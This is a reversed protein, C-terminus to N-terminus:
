EMAMRDQDTISRLVRCPVGAALSHAPIDRTVVSGAAIVCGEGITVGGCVTVNAALWCDNGIVIPRSYEPQWVSGDPRTQTRQEPCLPHLPAALTCNPGFLVNDGVTIPGCDLATFNYNASSNRGFRLFCGYDLRVPPQLWSDPGLGPVLEALIAALEERDGPDTQNFRHYLTRARRRLATLEQDGPDYLRGSLMKEKETMDLIVGGQRQPIPNVM